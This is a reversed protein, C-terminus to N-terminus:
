FIYITKLPYLFTLTLLWFYTFMCSASNAPKIITYNQICQNKLANFVFKDPCKSSIGVILNGLGQICTIYSHESGFKTFNGIKTCKYNPECHYPTTSSCNKHKLDVIFNPPCSINYPVWNICNIFNDCNYSNIFIGNTTCDTKSQKVTCKEEVNDYLLGDPCNTSVAIIMENVSKICTIYSANNSPNTFNGTNTCTYNPECHFNTSNSCIMDQYNVIFGSPCPIEYEIFGNCVLYSSCNHSSMFKGNTSCLKCNALCLSALLILIWLHLKEFTM